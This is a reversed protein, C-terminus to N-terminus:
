IYNELCLLPTRTNNYPMSNTNTMIIASLVDSRKLSQREDPWMVGIAYGCCLDTSVAM